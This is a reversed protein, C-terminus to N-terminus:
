TLPKVMMRAEPGYSALKDALEPLELPAFGRKTWFGASGAVTVLSMTPLERVRAHKELAAVIQSAAGIRRALPLIALDHIYYTDARDPLAGLPADLEPPAGFLWPHSLVYGAARDGIELLYAGHPYLRQKEALVEASEFLTPHVQAAIREVEGLDFGTMTRWALDRFKMM